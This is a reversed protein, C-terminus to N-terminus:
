RPLLRYTHSHHPQPNYKLAQFAPILEELPKSILTNVTWGYLIKDIVAATAHASKAKWAM